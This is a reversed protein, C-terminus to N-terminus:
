RRDSSRWPRDTQSNWQGEYTMRTHTRSGRQATCERTSTTTHSRHRPYERSDDARCDRPRAHDPSIPTSSPPASSRKGLVFCSYMGDIKFKLKRVKRGEAANKSRTRAGARTPVTGPPVSDIYFLYLFTNGEGPGTQTETRLNGTWAPECPERCGVACRTLLSWASRRTARTSIRISHREVGLHTDGRPCTQRSRTDRRPSV